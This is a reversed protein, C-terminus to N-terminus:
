ASLFQQIKDVVEATKEAHLWHGANEVTEISAQSFQQEIAAYHEPKSLYPSAGGRIFLSPADVQVPQWSLIKSYSAYLADVNFLWQGKSFSKMLFQIVADERLHQQMIQTADQRSEVQAKKVAFLADFVQDHHNEQYAFPTMDLVVLKEVREPALDALQMAIKGGMSHGVAIFKKINLSALTELIDEAMIQYNVEDSHGSLGHNRVDIQITTTQESFHRALMGLNSLSGFLGHIFVMPALTSTEHTQIQYNLIM